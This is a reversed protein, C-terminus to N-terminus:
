GARGTAGADGQRRWGGLLDRRRCCGPCWGCPMDSVHCSHTSHLLAEPLGSRRLLEAPATTVFPATVRVEGEQTRTLADLLGVFEATGDSHRAGDGAVLGLMVTDYGRTVAVAAGITALLQNRFPFWEPTPAPAHGTDGNTLLGAGVSSLDTDRELIVLGLHAAVRHAAAREAAAPRQGYDVFLAADPPDAAAAAASDLGGSLLLLRM